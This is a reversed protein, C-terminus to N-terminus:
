VGLRRFLKFRLVHTRVGLGAPYYIWVRLVSAAPVTANYEVRLADVSQAPLWDQEYPALYGDFLAVQGGMSTPIAPAMVAYIRHKERTAADGGLGQRHLDVFLQGGSIEYSVPQGGSYAHYDVVSLTASADADAQDAVLVHAGNFEAPNAPKYVGVLLAEGWPTQSQDAPNVRLDEVAVAPNVTATRILTDRDNLVYGLGSAKPTAYAIGDTSRPGDVAVRVAEPPPPANPDSTDLTAGIVGAVYAGIFVAGDIDTNTFNAGGLNAYRVNANRLDANSFDAGQCLARTLVAGSLRGGQLNAGNLATGTLNAFALEVDNAACFEVAAKVSAHEGQYLLQGYVSYVHIIAM